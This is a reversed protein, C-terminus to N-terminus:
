IGLVVMCVLLDTLIGHDFVFLYPKNWVGSWQPKAKHESPQVNNSVPEKICLPRNIAKGRESWENKSDLQCERSTKQHHQPPFREPTYHLTAGLRDHHALHCKWIVECEPRKYSLHIHSQHMKVICRFFTIDYILAVVFLLCEKTLSLVYIYIYLYLIIYALVEQWVSVDWHTNPTKKGTRDM